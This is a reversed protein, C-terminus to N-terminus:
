FTPELFPLISIFRDFVGAGPGRLARVNYPIMTESAMLRAFLLRKRILREKMVVNSVHADRTADSLPPM